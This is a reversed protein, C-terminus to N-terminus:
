KRRLLMTILYLLAILVFASIAFSGFANVELVGLKLHLIDAATSKDPTM